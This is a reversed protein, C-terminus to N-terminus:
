LRVPCSSSGCSVFPREGKACAQFLAKHCAALWQQQEGQSAEGAAAAAFGLQAATLHQWSHPQGAGALLVALSHLEEDSATGADDHMGLLM